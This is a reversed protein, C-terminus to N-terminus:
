KSINKSFELVCNYADKNNGIESNNFDFKNLLETALKLTEKQGFKIGKNFSPLILQNSANSIQFYTNSGIKYFRVKFGNCDTNYESEWNNQKPQKIWKM